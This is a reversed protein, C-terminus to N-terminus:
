KLRSRSEYTFCRLDRNWGYMLYEGNFQANEKKVLPVGTKKNKVDVRFRAGENEAAVIIRNTMGQPTKFVNAKRFSGDKELKFAGMVSYYEYFVEGTELEVGNPHSDYMAYEIFYFTDGGANVSHVAQDFFHNFNGYLNGGNESEFVWEPENIVGGRFGDNLQTICAEDFACDGNGGTYFSTMFLRVRKDESIATNWASLRWSYKNSEPKFYLLAGLNKVDLPFDCNEHPVLRLAEILENAEANSCNEYDLLYEYEDIIRCDEFHYEEGNELCFDIIGSYAYAFRNFHMKGVYRGEQDLVRYHFADDEEEEAVSLPDLQFSRIDKGSHITVQDPALFHKPLDSSMCVFVYGVDEKYGSGYIGYVGQLTEVEEQTKLDKAKGGCKCSVGAFLLSISVLSLLFLHKM